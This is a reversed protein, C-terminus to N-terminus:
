SALTLSDEVRWEVVVEDDVAFDAWSEGPHCLVTVEGGNPLLVIYKRFSGLYLANGVRGTLEVVGPRGRDPDDLARLRVREPRVVVGAEDVSASGAIERVPIDLDDGTLRTSGNAGSLRGTFINSEGVFDAVFLTASTEYLTEADGIQEILGENYIAIRDSMLLAEEQDHTM